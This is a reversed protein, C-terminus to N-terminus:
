SQLMMAFLSVDGAVVLSLLIIVIVHFASLPRTEDHM